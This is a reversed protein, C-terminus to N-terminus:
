KQELERRRAILTRSIAIIVALVGGLFTIVVCVLARNPSSIREPAVAPDITKFAYEDRVAAFMLTKTHEEILRYLVTRVDSLATQIVQNELFEIARSSEVVDRQRMFENLDKILLDIWRQAVYPSAHEFSIKIMGNNQLEITLVELFKRHAELVSPKPEAPPEVDRVWTQSDADYIDANFHLTNSNLDWREVAFLEALLNEHEIFKAFFQRSRLVELAIQSQDVQGKNLQIGALGALGGLQGQLMGLAGQENQQTPMVLAEATYKNPLILAIIVSAVAFFATVVIVQLKRKWIGNILEFLDIETQPEHTTM